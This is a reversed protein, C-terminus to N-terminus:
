ICSKCNKLKKLIGLFVSRTEIDFKWLWNIYRHEDETLEIDEFIKNLEKDQKQKLIDWKDMKFYRRCTWIQGVIVNRMNYTIYNDDIM